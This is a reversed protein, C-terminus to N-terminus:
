CTTELVQLVRQLTAPDVGAPVRLLHGSHLVIELMAPTGPVKAPSPVETFGLPNEAALAKGKRM